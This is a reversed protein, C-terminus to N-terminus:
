KSLDPLGAGTSTTVKYFRCNLYIQRVLFDRRPKLDQKHYTLGLLQVESPLSLNGRTMDFVTTLETFSYNRDPGNPHRMSQERAERYAHDDFSIAEVKLLDGTEKCIWATAVWDNIGEIRPEGPHARIGIATREDVMKTGALSYDYYPAHSPDFLFIWSYARQLASPLPAEDLSQPGRKSAPQRYDDLSGDDRRRYIYRFSYDKRGTHSHNHITEDCTFRLASDEYRQALRRLHDLAQPLTPDAAVTADPAAPSVTLVLVAAVHLLM